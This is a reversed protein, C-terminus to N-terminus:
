RGHPTLAKIFSRCEWAPALLSSRFDAADAPGRAVDGYYKGSARKTQLCKLEVGMAWVRGSNRAVGSLGGLVVSKPEPKRLSTREADRHISYGGGTYLDKPPGVCFLQPM